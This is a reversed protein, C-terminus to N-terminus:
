IVFVLLFYRRVLVARQLVCMNKMVDYQQQNRCPVIIDLMHFARLHRPVVGMPAEPPEEEMRRLRTEVSVRLDENMQFFLDRPQTM